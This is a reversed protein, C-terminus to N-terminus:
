RNKLNKKRTAYIWFGIAIFFLGAPPFLIVIPLMIFLGLFWLIAIAAGWQEAKANEEQHNNNLPGSM